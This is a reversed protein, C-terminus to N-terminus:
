MTASFSLFFSWTVASSIFVPSWAFPYAPDQTIYDPSRTYPVHLHLILSQPEYLRPRMNYVSLSAPYLLFCFRIEMTVRTSGHHFRDTDYDQHQVTFFLSWLIRCHINVPAVSFSAERFGSNICQPFISSPRVGAKWYCKRFGQTPQLPSLM